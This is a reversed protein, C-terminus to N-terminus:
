KMKREELYAIASGLWKYFRKANTLGVWSVNIDICSQTIKAMVCSGDVFRFSRPKRPKKRM